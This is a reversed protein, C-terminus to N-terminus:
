RQWIIDPLELPIRALPHYPIIRPTFASAPRTSPVTAAYRRYGNMVAGTTQCTATVITPAASEAGDAYLEVRVMDPSLEGLYVEISFSQSDATAEVYTRGFHLSPKLRSWERKWAAIGLSPDNATKVREAYAEAAPLYFDRM